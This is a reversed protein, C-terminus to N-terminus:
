HRHRACSLFPIFREFLLNGGNNGAANAFKVKKELYILNKPMFIRKDICWSGGLSLLCRNCEYMCMYMFMVSMHECSDCYNECAAAHVDTSPNLIKLCIYMYHCMNPKYGFSIVRFTTRYLIGDYKKDHRM